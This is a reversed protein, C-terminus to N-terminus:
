SSVTYGGFLSASADIKKKKPKATKGPAGPRVAKLLGASPLWLEISDSM